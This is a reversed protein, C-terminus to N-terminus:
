CIHCPVEGGVNLQHATIHDRIGKSTSLIYIGQMFFLSNLQHGSASSRGSHDFSVGSDLRDPLSSTTHSSPLQPNSSFTSSFRGNPVSASASDNLRDKSPVGAGRLQNISIYVRKSPKSIRIIKNIVPKQNKYKLLIQLKNSATPHFRYGRIYGHEQSINSVAIVLKTQVSEITLIHCRQGNQINSFSHSSSDSMIFRSFTQM